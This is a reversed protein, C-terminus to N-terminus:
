SIELPSPNVQDLLLQLTNKARRFCAKIDLLNELKKTLLESIGVINAFFEEFIETECKLCEIVVLSASFSKL